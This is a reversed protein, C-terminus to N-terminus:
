FVILTSFLSSGSILETQLSASCVSKTNTEISETTEDIDFNTYNLVLQADHNWHHFKEKPQEVPKDIIKDETWLTSTSGSDLLCDKTNPV